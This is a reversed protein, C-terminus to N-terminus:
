DVSVILAYPQKGNPAQPVNYGRVQIQYNGATLDRTLSEFNNTHDGITTEHGDKDILVLDLDNVLVKAAGLAAPTDTYVLTASLKTKSSIRIKYAHTEGPGLGAHDDVILAEGLDTAKNLDVRGFGEDANPRATLIEQGRKAGHEGFEGPFLDFASHMLVAKLLASSPNKIKRNEILYQRVVAASSATLAAADSSGGSWVYSQGFSGWTWAAPTQSMARSRLSLLNTAPAVIEPKIRGDDTPGRSGFPALGKENDSLRSSALPEAPFGAKIGDLERLRAGLAGTQNSSQGSNKGFNKSAGVTLANKATAPSVISNSDVRGDHDADQGSNGAAFVILMDPNMEAFEDVQQADISYEGSHASSGWADLHIRAGAQYAKLFLDRLRAPVALLGSGADWISQPLVHAGTAVGTIRGGLGAGNGVMLGALYTGHGFLDAWSKSRESFISGELVHGALDAPLHNVDGTDLGPIRWRSSKVKAM